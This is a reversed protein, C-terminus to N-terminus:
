RVHGAWASIRDWIDQRSKDSNSSLASLSVRLQGNLLPWITSRLSKCTTSLILLVDKAARGLDLKDECSDRNESDENLKDIAAKDPVSSRLRGTSRFAPGAQAHASDLNSAQPSATGTTGSGLGFYDNGWAGENSIAGTSVPGLPTLPASGPALNSPLDMYSRAPVALTVPVPESPKTESLEQTRLAIRLWIESPIRLAAAQENSDFM